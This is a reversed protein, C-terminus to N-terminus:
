RAQPPCVWQIHQYQRRNCGPTGQWRCIDCANARGETKFKHWICTVLHQIFGKSLKTRIQDHGNEPRAPYFVLDELKTSVADVKMRGQKRLVPTGHRLEPGDEVTIRLGAGRAVSHDPVEIRAADQVADGNAERVVLRGEGQVELQGRGGSRAKTVDDAEKEATCQVRPLSPVHILESVVDPAYVVAAHDVGLPRVVLHVAKDAGHVEGRVQRRDGDCGRAEPAKNDGELLIVSHPAAVVGSARRDVLVSGSAALRRAPPTPHQPGQRGGQQGGDRALHRRTPAAGAAGAAARRWPMQIRCSGRAIGAGAYSCAVAKSTM